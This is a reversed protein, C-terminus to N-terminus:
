PDAGPSSPPARFVGFRFGLYAVIMSVLSALVLAIEQLTAPWLILIVSFVAYNVTQALWSVAAFRGFEALTPRRAVSFTVSRNVLWSVVMAVAISFPRAVLAGLGAGDTLMRLVAMDTLLALIGGLLFGGVHRVQAARSGGVAKNTAPKM